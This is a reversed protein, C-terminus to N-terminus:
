SLKYGVVTKLPPAKKAEGGTWHGGEGERFTKPGGNGFQQAHEKLAASQESSGHRKRVEKRSYVCKYITPKRWRWPLLGHSAASDTSGRSAV